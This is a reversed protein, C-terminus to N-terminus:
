EGVIQVIIERSRSKNDFDIFIIQQWTGLTLNGEIIPASFFPKVLSSRVHAYGNGDHWKENHHYYADEPAIQELIKKLDTIAGSEYEITTIGATSGPCSINVIGDHIGSKKIISEVESTIDSIDTFGKTRLQIYDTKVM